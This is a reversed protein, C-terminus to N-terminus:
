RGYKLKKIKHIMGRPIYDRAAVITDSWSSTLTIGDPGDYLLFGVSEFMHPKYTHDKNEAWPGDDPASADEWTVCVMQPPKVTM